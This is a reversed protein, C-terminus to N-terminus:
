KESGSTTAAIRELFSSDKLLHQAVEGALREVRNGRVYERLIQNILIQYPMGDADSMEKFFQIIDADLNITIKQRVHRQPILAASKGPNTYKSVKTQL